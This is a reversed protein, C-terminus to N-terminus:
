HSFTDVSMDLGLPSVTCMEDLKKGRRIVENFDRNLTPVPLVRPDAVTIGGAVPPNDLGMFGSFGAAQNFSTTPSIHTFQTNTERAHCGNCTGLSFNHMVDVSDPLNNPINLPTDWFDNLDYDVSAGLFPVGNYTLPVSYFPEQPPPPAISQANNNIYASLTPSGPYHLLKDPTQKITSSMLQGASLTFERLQWPRYGGKVPNILANENTRVQNIASRNMKGPAAGLRTVSDTIAQLAVNYQSPQVPSFPLTNLNVWQQNLTCINGTNGYELIVTMPEPTCTNPNVLGFVFRLEGGQSQYSSSFANSPTLDLRNTIALLRLPLYNMNLTSATVGNWGPFFNRINPRAPITFGNTATTTQNVMWQKLWENTFNRAVISNPAGGSMNSMLTKFSWVGDVNGDVSTNTTSFRGDLCPNFTRTIDKVVSLDRVMLTKLPDTTSPLPATVNFRIPLRRLTLGNPLIANAAVKTNATATDTPIVFPKKSVIKRGSFKYAIPSKITSLRKYYADFKTQYAKLDMNIFASHLGDGAKEDPAIGSDNLTIQKDKEPAVVILDAIKEKPNFGIVVAAQENPSTSGDVQYFTISDIKPPRNKFREDFKGPAIASNAATSFLALTVALKVAKTLILNKPLTNNPM